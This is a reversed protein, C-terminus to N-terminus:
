RTQLSMNSLEKWREFCLSSHLLSEFCLSSAFVRVRKGRKLSFLGVLKSIRAKFCSQFFIVEFPVCCSVAVCQLVSCCVAVCQLLKWLHWKLHSPRYLVRLTWFARTNIRQLHVHPTSQKCTCTKWTYANAGFFFYSFKGRRYSCRGSNKVLGLLADSFRKSEQRFDACYFILKIINHKRWGFCLVKPNEFPWYLADSFRESEQRFDSCWFNVYICM